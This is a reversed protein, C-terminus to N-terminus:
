KKDTAKLFLHLLKLHLKKRISIRDITKKLINSNFQLAYLNATYIQNLLFYYNLLKFNLKSNMMVSLAKRIKNESWDPFIKKLTKSRINNVCEYIPKLNAQSSQSNHIRYYLLYEPINYFKVNNDLMRIWLEYDEANGLMKEDFMFRRIIDTKLMVSPFAICNGFVRMHCEIEDHTIPPTQKFKFNRSNFMYYYSGCVDIDPNLEMFNLQTQLRNLHAIDDADIFAIYKGKAINIALNRSYAQKHNHENKILKIRSDQEQYKKLISYTNDTSCDDVVIFEFNSYTQNIISSILEALYKEANYVTTITSILRNQNM